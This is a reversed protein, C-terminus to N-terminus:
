LMSFKGLTKVKNHEKILVDFLSIDLANCLAAIYYLNTGVEDELVEVCNDCLKGETQYTMLNSIDDLSADNPIAQKQVSLSVCGCNTVSKALARNVRASSEGLKTMIDIISKHRILSEEVSTQFDDVMIDKM